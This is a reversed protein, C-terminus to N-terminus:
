GRVGAFRLWYLRGACRCCMNRGRAYRPVERGAFASQSAREGDGAPFRNRVFRRTLACAAVCHNCQTCLEEKWVPIEEAINRKEWRHRGNVMNRAAARFVPLLAAAAGALM